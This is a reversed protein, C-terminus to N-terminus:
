GYRLRMRQAIRNSMNFRSPRARKCRHKNNLPENSFSRAKALESAVSLLSHGEDMEGHCPPFVASSFYPLLIERASVNRARPCVHWHCEVTSLLCTRQFCKFIKRLQERHSFAHSSRIRNYLMPSSITLIFYRPLNSIKIQEASASSPTIPPQLNM